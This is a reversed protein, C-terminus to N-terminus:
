RPPKSSYVPAGCTSCWPALAMPPEMAAGGYNNQHQSSLLIESLGRLAAPDLPLVQIRADM